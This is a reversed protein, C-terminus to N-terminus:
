APAGDRTLWPPLYSADEVVDHFRALDVRRGGAPLRSVVDAFRAGWVIDAATYTHRAHVTQSLTSDLGVVSVIIESEDAAVTEPTAGHLPSSETLHHVMTWTLAFVANRTRAPELDHFRRVTEGEPTGEWRALVLHAEAEVIGTAWANAMRLVLSPRGDRLTIIAHRSFLVRATPRSFKAFILGTLMALGLIGTSTELVVLLNAYTTAPVLKGYGITAMTQISFFFADAFSGPRANEIAGPQLLYAAAFLANAALYLSVLIGLLKPWSADLLFHYADRQLRGFGERIFGDPGARTAPGRPRV